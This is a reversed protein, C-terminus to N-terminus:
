RFILRLAEDEKLLIVDNQGIRRVFAGQFADGEKLVAGNIVAIRKKPDPAWAIAQLTWGPNGALGPRIQSELPMPELDEARSPQIMDPPHASEVPPPPNSELPWAPKPNSVLPANRRTEHDMALTVANKEEQVESATVTKGNERHKWRLALGVSFMVLLAVLLMKLTFWFGEKFTWSVRRQRSFGRSSLVLLDRERDDGDELKKLATLISSL